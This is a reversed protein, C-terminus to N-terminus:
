KVLRLKHTQRLHTWLRELIMVAAEDQHLHPDNAVLRCSILLAGNEHWLGFENRVRMLLAPQYTILDEPDLNGLKTRDKFSLGANLREVAEELSRPRDSLRRQTRVNLLLVANNLIEFVKDYIFPDESARTGAVNLVKIVNDTLWNVLTYLANDGSIDNLDIHLCPKDFTDTYERTLKSGGKRKGHTLILTGDSDVVNARTRAPYSDTPMEKLQYHAPIEGDEARRGCPVWGGHPLGMHIAVDLAARDAGTQGGSVIKTLM